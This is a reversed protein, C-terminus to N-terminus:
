VRAADAGFLAANDVYILDPSSQAIITDVDIKSKAAYVAIKIAASRYDTTLEACASLRPLCVYGKSATLADRLAGTVAHPVIDSQSEGDDNDADAGDLPDGNDHFLVRGSRWQASLRPDIPAILRALRPILWDSRMARALWYCGPYRHLSIHSFCLPVQPAMAHLNMLAKAMWSVFITKDLVGAAQVCGFIDREGGTMKVDLHLRTEPASQTRFEAVIEDLLALGRMSKQQRVDEYRWQGIGYWEGDDARFHSDHHIVLRRDLTQRIDCEVHRVGASLAARLGAVTADRSDFGRFRHSLLETRILNSRM